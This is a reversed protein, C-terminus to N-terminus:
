FPLSDPDIEGDPDNGDPENKINLKKKVSQVIAETLRKYVETDPFYAAKVHKFATRYAPLDFILMPGEGKGFDKWKITCGKIRVFGFDLQAFAVIPDKDPIITIQVKLGSVAESYPLSITYEEKSM